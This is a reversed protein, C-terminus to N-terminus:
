KQITGLFAMVEKFEQEKLIDKWTPMGKDVRGDRITTTAVDAWKDDYRLKLRRLDRERVPSYGDAGHCHSCADNFKVRGNKPDASGTSAQVRTTWQAPVRVASTREPAAAYSLDVPKARPFAYKEALKDIQPKLGPLVADIQKALDEKERAIAISVSGSLDHGAVPTVAWRGAHKRANDFGASPGWLFATDIEGKALAAFVEDAERYTTTQFGGMTALVVQPTSGFQVGIRKGKLDDLGKFAFGPAAVLAYGVELFPKSKVITRARYDSPLAAVVDCTNKNITNRLMRRQNHTYWWVYEVPMDLKRAVLEIVEVYLGKEPGEAKSFPLNDPDACVRLADASAAPLAFSGVALAAALALAKHIGRNKM